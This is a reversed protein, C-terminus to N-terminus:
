PRSAARAARFASIRCHGLLGCCCKGIPRTRHTSAITAIMAATHPVILRSCARESSLSRVAASASIVTMVDDAQVLAARAVLQHDRADGLGEDLRRDVRAGAAIDARPVRIDTRM